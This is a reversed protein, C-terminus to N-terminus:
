SRQLSLGSPTLEHLLALQMVRLLLVCVVYFRIVFAKIRLCLLIKGNLFVHKIKVNHNRIEEEENNIQFKYIKKVTGLM